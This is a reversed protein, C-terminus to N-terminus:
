RRIRLKPNLIEDLAYGLLIFATAILAICLGPPLVWWWNRTAGAVFVEHLMRGWSMRNPDYFGLWSLAAEATIAGPVATALSVYTLSMVHPLIHRAIIHGSGAGAAKSAEIFPREKLSLVQSRVVRAFGNWGLLGLLIILNEIGAGLVAVLVILLPLSPLVLLLDNVRMLFQDAVGGKYGAVLGVVLGIVVSIVSVSIGIYLSIRTGYILQAFLDHGFQDTGMIGFSTGYLKLALDDVYVTTSVNEDEFANDIFTLKIGFVYKGPTKSFYKAVVDPLESDILSIESAQSTRVIIWYQNTELGSFPRIVSIDGSSFNFYFGNPIVLGRPFIASSNELSVEAPGLFLEVAVPVHLSIERRALKMRSGVRKLNADYITAGAFGEVELWYIAYPDSISIKLLIYLNQKKAVVLNNYLNLDASVLTVTENVNHQNQIPSKLTISGNGYNNVQCIEQTEADGIVIYANVGFVEVPWGKTSEVYITKNGMYGEKVLRTQLRRWNAVSVIDPANGSDQLDPDCIEENKRFGVYSVNGTDTYLWSFPSESLESYTRNILSGESVVWNMDGWHGPLLDTGNLWEKWNLYGQGWYTQNNKFYETIDSTAAIHIDSTSSLSLTLNGTSAKTAGGKIQIIYWQEEPHIIENYSGNVLIEFNGSYRAPRGLYPYDFEKYIYISTEGTMIGQSRQFSVAMSGNQPDFYMGRVIHSYGVTNSTLVTVYQSNDEPNLHSNFEGGEVSLAPFGPNGVVEINESLFPNGGLITPFNRLWVPAARKGALGGGRKPDVGLNDYPTLFSSGIAISVFIFIILLGATARFSKFFAKFFGLM